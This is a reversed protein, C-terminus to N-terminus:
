ASLTIANVPVVTMSQALHEINDILFGKVGRGNYDREVFERYTIPLVIDLGLENARQQIRGAEQMTACVIYNHNEASLRILCDTKGEGRGLIIKEM